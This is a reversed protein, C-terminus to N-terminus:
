RSIAGVSPIPSGKKGMSSARGGKRTPPADLSVLFPFFSHFFSVYSPQNQKEEGWSSYTIPKSFLVCLDQREDEM